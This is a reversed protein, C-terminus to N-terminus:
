AAVASEAPADNMPVPQLADKVCQSITYRPPTHQWAIKQATAAESASENCPGIPRDTVNFQRGLALFVECIKGITMNSSGNLLQSIYGRSTGLISALDARSVRKEEMLECIRETIEFIVREQQWARMGEPTSAIKGTLTQEADNSM